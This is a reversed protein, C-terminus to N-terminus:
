QDSARRTRRDVQIRRRARRRQQSTRTPTATNSRSTRAKPGAEVFERLAYIAPLQDPDVRRKFRPDLSPLL